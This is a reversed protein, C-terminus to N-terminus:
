PTPLMGDAELFARIDDMHDLALQKGQSFLPAMTWPMFVMSSPLDQTKFRFFLIERLKAEDYILDDNPDHDNPDTPDGETPLLEGLPLAQDITAAPVGALKLRDRARNIYAIARAMREDDRAVEDNMVSLGRDIRKFPDTTGTETMTHDPDISAENLAVACLHTTGPRMAERFPIVERVGGDTAWRDQGDFPVYAPTMVVPQACSAFIVESMIAMDAAESSRFGRPHGAVMDVITAVYETPHDGDLAAKMLTPEINDAILKKLPTIDAVGGKTFLNWVTGVPGDPVDAVQNQFVMTYLHFLKDLAKKPSQKTKYRGYLEAILAGVLSGTSTGSVVRLKPLRNEEVYKSYVTHFIGATFAGHSGGGSLALGVVREDAPLPVSELPFKQLKREVSGLTKKKPRPSM